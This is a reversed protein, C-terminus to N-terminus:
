CNKLNQVKAIGLVIRRRSHCIKRLNKAMMTEKNTKMKKILGRKEGYETRNRKMRKVKEYAKNMKNKDGEKGKWEKKSKNGRAREIKGGENGSLM